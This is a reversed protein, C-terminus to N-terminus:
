MQEKGRARKNAAEEYKVRQKPYRRGRGSMDKVM